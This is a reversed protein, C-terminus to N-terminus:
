SAAERTQEAKEASSVLDAALERATEPAMTHEVWETEMSLKITVTHDMANWFVQAECPLPMHSRYCVIALM